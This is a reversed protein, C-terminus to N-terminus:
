TWRRLALIGLGLSFLMCLEPEPVLITSFQFDDVIVAGPTFPTRMGTSIRLEATQSAFPRIDIGFKTVGGNQELEYLPLLQGGVSVEVQVKDDPPPFSPAALFTLSSANAPFLGIQYIAAPLNITGFFSTNLQMSFQGELIESSTTWGPGYLIGSAGGFSITNFPLFGFNPSISWSPLGGDLTLFDPNDPDFDLKASEFDFNRFEQACVGITVSYVALAFIIPKIMSKIKKDFSGWSIPFLHDKKVDL